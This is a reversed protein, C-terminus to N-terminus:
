KKPNPAPAAAPLMAVIDGEIQYPLNSTAQVVVSKENLLMTVPLSLIGLDVALKSEMGGAEYLHDWNFGKNERLFEIANRKDTDVNIGVIALKNGYRERLRQLREMDAKCSAVNSAWYHVIVPRKLTALKVPKGELTVGEFLVPRGVINLRALAGSAKNGQSTGPYEKAIREYWKAASKVDGTVESNFGLQIMADSSDSSQPFADVFAELKELHSKQVSEFNVDKDALANTYEAGLIRYAVYSSEQKARENRQISDELKKLREIGEPYDGSQVAVFVQDAMQHIWTQIDEPSKSDAILREYINARQAHITAKDNAPDQLKADLSELEKLLNLMTASMEGPLGGAAPAMRNVEASAFFLGNEPIPVGAKMLRPVDIMRWSDNVQILTGVLLQQPGSSTEVVAMVNEYALVDATSGETGAPVIGPKDAGFNVWRSTADIIKQSALLKQFQEPAGGIREKLDVTKQQGLGLEELEADTLMLRELRKADSERLAAVVESTVEEASIAKWTDIVGDEDRDVGWRMGSTGMWRSQDIKDNFDSDIDRYVEVGNGYFSIQDIKKDGNTDALWRIPEGNPGSVLLGVVGNRTEYKGTCKSYDAPDTKDFDADKQKAARSLMKALLAPEIDAAAAMPLLSSAACAALVPAKWGTRGIRSALLGSFLGILDHRVSM